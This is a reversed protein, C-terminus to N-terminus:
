TLRCASHARSEIFQEHFKKPVICSRIDTLHYGHQIFKVRGSIYGGPTLPVTTALKACRSGTFIEVRYITDNVRKLSVIMGRLRDGDVLMLSPISNQKLYLAGWRVTFRVLMDDTSWRGYGVCEHKPWPSGLSEFIAFGGNPHAYLYIEAGCYRCITQFTLSRGTTTALIRMPWEYYDVSTRSMVRDPADGQYGYGGSGLHGEGGFGCVCSWSHNNANCM